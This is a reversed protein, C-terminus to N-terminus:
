LKRFSSVDFHVFVTHVRKTWNVVVESYLCKSMFICIFFKMFTVKLWKLIEFQV